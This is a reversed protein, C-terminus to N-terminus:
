FVHLTTHCLWHNNFKLYLYYFNTMLLLILARGKRTHNGTRIPLPSNSSSLYHMRCVRTFACLLSDSSTVYECYMGSSNSNSRVRTFRHHDSVFKFVRNWHNLMHTKISHMLFVPMWKRNPAQSCSTIFSSYWLKIINYIWHTTVMIRQQVHKLEM